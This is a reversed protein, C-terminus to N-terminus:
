FYRKWNPNKNTKKKWKGNSINIIKNTEKGILIIKKGIAM